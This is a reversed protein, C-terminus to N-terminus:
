GLFVKMMGFVFFAAIAAVVVGEVVRVGWSRPAYTTRRPMQEWLQLPLQERKM